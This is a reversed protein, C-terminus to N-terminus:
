CGQGPRGRASIEKVKSDAESLAAEIEGLRKRLIEELQPM